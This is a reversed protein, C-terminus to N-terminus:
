IAVIDLVHLLLSKDDPNMSILNNELIGIIIVGPWLYDIAKSRIDEGSM